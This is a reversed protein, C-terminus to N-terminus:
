GSVVNLVSSMGLKDVTCSLSLKVSVHVMSVYKGNIEVYKILREYKM